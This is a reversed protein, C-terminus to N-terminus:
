RTETPPNLEGDATPGGMFIFATNGLAISELYTLGRSEVSSLRRIEDVVAHSQFEPWTVLNLHRCDFSM